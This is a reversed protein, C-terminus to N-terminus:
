LSKTSRSTEGGPAAGRDRAPRIAPRDEIAEGLQGARKPRLQLFGHPMILRM